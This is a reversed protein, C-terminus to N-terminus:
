SKLLSCGGVQVVGGGVVDELLRWHAHLSLISHAAKGGESAQTRSLQGLSSCAQDESELSDMRFGWDQSAM